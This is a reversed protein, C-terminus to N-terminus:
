CPRLLVPLPGPACPSGRCLDRRSRAVSDDSSQLSWLRHWQPKFVGEETHLRIEPYMHGSGVAWGLDPLSSRMCGPESHVHLSRGPGFRFPKQIVWWKALNNAGNSRDMVSSLWSPDPSDKTNWSSRSPLRNCDAHPFLLHQVTMRERVGTVRLEIMPRHSSGVGFLRDNSTIKKRSSRFESQLM